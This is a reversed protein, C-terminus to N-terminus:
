TVVGGLTHHRVSGNSNEQKTNLPVKLVFPRYGAMATPFYITNDHLALLCCM